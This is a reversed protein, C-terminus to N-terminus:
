GGPAKHGEPQDPYTRGVWKELTRNKLLAHHMAEHALFGLCGWSHGAVVAAFLALYGPPSALIVFSAAGLIIALHLPLWLLRGPAKQFVAKPLHPRVERAYHQVRQREYRSAASRNM